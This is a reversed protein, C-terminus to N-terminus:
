KRPADAPCQEHIHWPDSNPRTHIVTIESTPKRLSGDLAAVRGTICKGARTREPPSSRCPIVMVTGEHRRAPPPEILAWRTSSPVYPEYVSACTRIVQGLYREANRAIEFHPVTPGASQSQLAACAAAGLGVCAIMLCSTSLGM